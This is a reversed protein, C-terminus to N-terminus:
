MFDETLSKIEVVLSFDFPTMFWLTKAQLLTRTAWTDLAMELTNARTRAMGGTMIPM